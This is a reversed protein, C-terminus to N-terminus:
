ASNRMKVGERCEGLIHNTFIKLSTVMFYTYILMKGHFNRAVRFIFGVSNKDSAM